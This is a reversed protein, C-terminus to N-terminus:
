RSWNRSNQMTSSIRAQDMHVNIEGASSAIGAGYAKLQGEERCVGFEITFWYLASLRRIDADSAGLSM